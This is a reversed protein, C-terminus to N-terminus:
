CLYNLFEQVHLRWFQKNMPSLAIQWYSFPISPAQSDLSERVTRLSVPAFSELRSVHSAGLWIIAPLGGLERDTSLVCAISFLPDNSVRTM